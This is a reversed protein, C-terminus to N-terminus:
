VLQFHTRPLRLLLGAQLLYPLTFPLGGQRLLNQEYLAMSRHLSGSAFAQRAEAMFPFISHQDLTLWETSSSQLTRYKDGLWNFGCHTYHLVFAQQAHGYLRCNGFGHPGHGAQGQGHLNLASKGNTYALFYRSGFHKQSLALQAPTLQSPSKKFLTVQEFYDGIYWAEPIAEHNHFLVADHAHHASLLEPLSPCEPTLWLQEDLDIHLLWDLREHRARAIAIGANLGQRAYAQKQVHPGFVPWTGQQPWLAELAADRPIFDVGQLGLAIHDALEAANDLFVYFRSIGLSQHHAVWSKFVPLAGICTTAIAIRM